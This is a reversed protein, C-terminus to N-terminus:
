VGTALQLTEKLSLKKGVVIAKDLEDKSLKSTANDIYVKGQFGEGYNNVIGEQETFLQAATAIEIAKAPRQEVSEVGAIGILALGIGRVSGVDEYARISDLFHARAERVNKVKLFVWAMEELIRAEEARDGMTNFSALASQYIEIAKDFNGQISSILALGGLSLAGCQLDRIKTQISLAKDFSEKAAELEGM